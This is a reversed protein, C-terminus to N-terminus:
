RQAVRLCSGGALSLLGLLALEILGLGRIGRERFAMRRPGTHRVRSGAIWRLSLVRRGRAQIM